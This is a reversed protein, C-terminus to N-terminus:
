DPVGTLHLGDAEIYAVTAEGLRECARTQASKGHM